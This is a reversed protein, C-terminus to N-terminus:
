APSLVAAHLKGDRELKEIEDQAKAATEIAKYVEDLDKCFVTKTMLGHYEVIRDKIEPPLEQGPFDEPGGIQTLGIAPQRHKVAVSFHVLTGNEIRQLGAFNSSGEGLGPGVAAMVSAYRRRGQM